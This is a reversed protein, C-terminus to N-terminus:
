TTFIAGVEPAGMESPRRVGRFHVDRQARGVYAHQIGKCIHKLCIGDRVQDVPKETRHQKIGQSRTQCSLSELLVIDDDESKCQSWIM